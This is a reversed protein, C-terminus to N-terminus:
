SIWVDKLFRGGEVLDRFYLKAAEPGEGQHEEVINVLAKEVDGAMHAGDGCIYFFAGAELLKWVKDGHEKLRHQVYVKQSTERSFATYLTISGEEAWQELQAGYLFDQDRHRSGFFLMAPGAPVGGDQQQAIINRHQIFGRFPAVGTGPGVMIISTSLDKPLSFDPNRYIFVPLKQGPIAREGLATSAVGGRSKGLSEYRVVGVTIQVTNSQGSTSSELPSSSISYLRPALQRLTSLLEGPTLHAPRWDRLVDAVHRRYLYDELAAPDQLLTTLRDAADVVCGLSCIDEHKSQNILGNGNTINGNGNTIHGNSGNTSYHYWNGNEINGIPGNGNASHGHGNTIYGNENPSYKGGNTYGNINGNGNIYSYGNTGNKTSGNARAQKLVGNPHAGVASNGVKKELSKLKAALLQLLEPKPSRLDYCRTLAERLSVSTAGEVVEDDKYHWAPLKVLIAGEAGAADLLDEVVASDNSTWVGLADGPAYEIGSDGLDIEVRVTNKDGLLEVNCLGEIDLVTGYYPRSKSWSSRGTTASDTGGTEAAIGFWGLDEATQLDLSELGTLVATIWEDVVKWDEKNIDARPVFRQGGLASLRADITKGCRAFHAYSRDGLAIVSYNLKHLTPASTGLLWTCFDRAESPPVGDGQTSCAVLLAQCRDLPLGAPYDAMNVLEPWFGGPAGQIKDCLKEAIERSFGFETGFLVAVPKADPPCKPIDAEEIAIQPAVEAAVGDPNKLYAEFSTPRYQPKKPALSPNAIHRKLYSDFDTSTIPPKNHRSITWLALAGGAAAAAAIVLTKHEQITGM